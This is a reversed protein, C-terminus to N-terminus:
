VLMGFVARILDILALPGIFLWLLRLSQDVRLRAFITKLIVIIILIIVSKLFFWGLSGGGLFMIAGTSVLAWLLVVRALYFMGLRPGSYEAMYGGVIEQEAEPIHFPPMSLSGMTGILFAFFALPFQWAFFPEVSFATMFGITLLSVVFPFEYSFLLVVQRISGVSGLPSGSAWGSLSLFITYVIDLYIIVLLNGSFHAPSQAGIPLFIVISLASAFSVVPCLTMLLGAANRPTINEKSMLKIWDFLPQWIPPGVRSQMRATLKRSIGEYLLGFAISALLGPFVFLWLIESIM